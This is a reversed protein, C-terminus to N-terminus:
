CGIYASGGQVRCVYEWSGSYIPGGQVKCIVADKAIKM